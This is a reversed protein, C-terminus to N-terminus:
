VNQHNFREFNIRVLVSRLEGFNGTLQLSKSPSAVPGSRDVPGSRHMSGGLQPLKKYIVDLHDPTNPTHPRLQAIITADCEDGAGQARYLYTHTCSVRISGVLLM